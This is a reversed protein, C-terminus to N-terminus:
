RSAFRVQLVFLVVLVLLGVSQVTAIHIIRLLHPSLQRSMSDVLEDDDEPKPSLLVSIYRHHHCIELWARDIISVSSQYVRPLVSQVHQKLASCALTRPKRSLYEGLTEAEEQLHEDKMAMVLKIKECMTQVSPSSKGSKMEMAVCVVALVILCVVLSFSMFSTELEPPRYIMSAVSTVSTDDVTVSSTTVVFLLDRDEYTTEANLDSGNNANTKQCACVTSDYAFSEVHCTVGLKTGNLVNCQPIVSVTPCFTRMSEAHGKCQHSITYNFKENGGKLSPLTVLCSYNYETRDGTVCITSWSNERFVNPYKVTRVNPMTLKASFTSDSLAPTVAFESTDVLVATPNSVYEGGCSSHFLRAVMTFSTVPFVNQSEIYTPTIKNNVELTTQPTAISEDGMSFLMHPVTTVRFMDALTETAYQNPVMRTAFQANLRIFTDMFLPTDKDPCLIIKEDIGWLISKTLIDLINMLPEIEELSLDSTEEVSTLIDSFLGMSLELSVTSISFEDQIISDFVSISDILSVEDQGISNFLSRFSQLLVHTINSKIQIQERTMSCSSGTYGSHCVCEAACMADGLKCIPVEDGTNRNVFVCKGHVSCDSSCQKDQKVCSKSAISTQVCSYWMHNCDADEVCTGSRGAQLPESIEGTSICPTNSNGNEGVFSSYCSGCTNVKSSCEHRSLLTCNPAESCEVYNIAESAFFIITKTEDRALSTDTKLNNLYDLQQVVKISDVNENVAVNFISTASAGMSDRIINICSLSDGVGDDRKQGRPLMYNLFGVGKKLVRPLASKSKYGFSHTLPLEDDEWYLSSFAFTTSFALGTQPSVSFEGFEPARNVRIAISAGVSNDTSSIRFILPKSTYSLSNSKIVLNMTFSAAKITNAVSSLAIRKLDISKDNVTWEMSIPTISDSTRTIKALLQLKDEANIINNTLAHRSSLTVLPADSTTLTILVSAKDHIHRVPDYVTVYVNLVHGVLSTRGSSMSVSIADDRSSLSMVNFEDCHQSFSPATVYCGWTFNWLNDDSHAKGLPFGDDYSGTANLVYSKGLSLTVSSPGAIVAIITSEEVKILVTSYSTKDLYNATVIVEYISNKMLSFPLIYAHAPNFDSVALYAAAQTGNENLCWSYDIDDKSVAAPVNGNCQTVYADAFIDIHSSAKVIISNGGRLSLVPITDYTVYLSHVGKGCDGFVNCLEVYIDYSINQGLFGELIIVPQTLDFSLQDLHKNVLEASAENESSVKIRVSAWRRGLGGSSVSLDLSLNTCRGIMKPAVIVVSPIRRVVPPQIHYSSQNMAMWTECKSVEEDYCQSRITGGLVTFNDGIRPSNDSVTLYIAALTSDIWSCRSRDVGVFSFVLICSFTEDLVHVNRSFQVYIELGNTSYQVSLISPPQRNQTPLISIIDGNPFSHGYDDANLGSLMVMVRYSGVLEPATLFYIDKMWWSRDFLNGDVSQLTINESESNSADALLLVNVKLYEKPQSTLHVRVMVSPSVSEIATPDAVTVVAERSGASLVSRAQVLMDTRGTWLFSNPSRAVCYLDYATEPEVNVYTVSIVDNESFAYAVQHSQSVIDNTLDPSAATSRYLSCILTGKTSLAFSINVLRSEAHISTIAIIPYVISSVQPVFATVLPCSRRKTPVYTPEGSPQASPEGTPASPVATPQDSPQGSPQSSPQNSPQGTPICPLAELLKRNSRENIYVNQEELPLDFASSLHQQIIELSNNKDLEISFYLVHQRIVIMVVTEFDNQLSNSPFFNSIMQVVIPPNTVRRHYTVGQVLSEHTPVLQMSFPFYSPETYSSPSSEAKSENRNNMNMNFAL